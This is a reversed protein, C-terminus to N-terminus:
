LISIRLSTHTKLKLFDAKNYTILEICHVEAIATHLCDNFHQFGVKEALFIARNYDRLEYSYPKLMLLGSLKAKIEGPSINLKGLVFATEQLILFSTFLEERKTIESFLEEAQRHKQPTQEVMFNIIVDSDLYIM